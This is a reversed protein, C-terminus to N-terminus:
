GAGSGHSPLQAPCAGTAADTVPALAAPYSRRTEAALGDLEGGSRLPPAKFAPDTVKTFVAAPVKIRLESRKDDFTGKLGDYITAALGTGHSLLSFSTGTTVDRDGE